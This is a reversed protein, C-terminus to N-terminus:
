HQARPLRDYNLPLSALCEAPRERTRHSMTVNGLTVSKMTVGLRLRLPNSTIFVRNASSECLRFREGITGVCISIRCSISDLDNYGRLTEIVSRNNACVASLNQHARACVHTDGKDDGRRSVGYGCTLETWANRHVDLSGSNARVTYKHEVCVCVCIYIHTHANSFSLSKAQWVWQGLFPNPASHYEIPARQPVSYLMERESVPYLTQEAM